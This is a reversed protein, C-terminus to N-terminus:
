GGHAIDCNTLSHLYSDYNKICFNDDKLKTEQICIISPNFQKILLNLENRNTKIGRINWTLLSFNNSNLNSMM